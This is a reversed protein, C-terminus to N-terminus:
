SPGASVSSASSWACLWGRPSCHPVGGSELAQMLPRIKANVVVNGTGAIVVFAVAFFVLEGRGVPAGSAVTDIFRFYFFTLLGGLLNGLFFLVSTPM